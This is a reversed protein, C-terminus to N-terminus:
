LVSGYNSHDKLFLFITVYHPTTFKIVSPIPLSHTNLRGRASVTEMGRILIGAGQSSNTRHPPFIAYTYQINDNKQINKKLLYGHRGKINKSIKLYSLVHRATVGRKFFM